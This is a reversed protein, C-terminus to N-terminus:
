SFHKAIRTRNKKRGFHGASRASHAAELVLQRRGTPVVIRQVKDGFENIEEQVLVGDVDSYGEISDSAKGHLQQLSDDQKQEKILSNCNAMGVTLPLISLDTDVLDGSSKELATPHCNLDVDTISEVESDTVSEVRSVSVDNAPSDSVSVIQAEFHATAHEDAQQQAAERAAQARTIRIVPQTPVSSSKNPKRIDLALQLVNDIGLYRGLM